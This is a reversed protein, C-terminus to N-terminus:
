TAKNSRISHGKKHDLIGQTIVSLKQYGGKPNKVDINKYGGVTILSMLSKNIIKHVHTTMIPNISVM